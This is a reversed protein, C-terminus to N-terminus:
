VMELGLINAANKYLIKEITKPKLPLSYLSSINEKISKIGPWDSGFIVKDSNKELEPFYKLLNQPPLGSIEM